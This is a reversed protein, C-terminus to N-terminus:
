RNSPITLDRDAPGGQADPVQHYGPLNGCLIRADQLMDPEHVSVVKTRIEKEDIEVIRFSPHCLVAATQIFHWRNESAISHIHNHGNFFLGIGNKKQLVSRLGIAPDIHMKNLDSMATTNHVPHHAFIFIPKDGSREICCELWRLQEADMHGSWDDPRRERTTDLFVLMGEETEIADYLPQDIFSLLESKTMSLTDHNGPVLRFPMGTARICRCIEAFEKDTGHHTLDGLSIHWHAKIEFFMSVYRKYFRDRVTLLQRNEPDIGPYHLDGMLALRLM